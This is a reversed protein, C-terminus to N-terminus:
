SSFKVAHKSNGCILKNASSVEPQLLKTAGIDKMVTHHTYFMSPNKAQCFTDHTIMIVAHVSFAFYKSLSINEDIIVKEPRYCSSSSIFGDGQPSLSSSIFVYLFSQFQNFRILMKMWFILVIFQWFCCLKPFFWYSPPQLCIYHSM